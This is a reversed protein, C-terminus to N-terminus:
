LILECDQEEEVTEERMSLAIGLTLIGVRGMFMLFIVVLKGLESLNGTIGLSLGVTGLSSIIEFMIQEFSATELLLLMIMALLFVLMYFAFGATAIQLRDLSIEHRSFRIRSRGKLTSIVLALLAAFTTSKLGGGTGSPSAGFIMLFFLVMLVALSMGSIPLTNFGVTTTATMVQFFAALLREWPALGAISQEIIVVLVTGVVTFGITVRLIVKSTFHLYDRKKILTDFVDTIVIFGIAGFYSLAAITLNIGVHDRFGEFSNSFLSFGATCFASVSHFVALWLSNEVGSQAFFFWLATAGVAEVSFTFVIVRKIFDVIKFDQPMAFAARTIEERRQSIKQQTALLIFSGFTMYGIGGLQMMALIVVEGFFSYSSGPDVTVLGTTSVASTAIFLNDLTSVSVTQAIPLSLLLWGLLVYSFYGLVLISIPSLGSTLQTCREILIKM